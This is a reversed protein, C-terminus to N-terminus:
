SAHRLLVNRSGSRTVTIYAPDALDTLCTTWGMLGPWAPKPMAM